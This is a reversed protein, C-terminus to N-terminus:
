DAPIVVPFEGYWELNIKVDYVSEIIERTLMKREAAAAIRGNRLFLFSDCYRFATNLDHMSVVCSMSHGKVIDRVLKMIAPQNKLDLSSTPEDLLMVKPDQVVARAICVKQYEGGSLKDIYRLSLEELGLRSIVAQTIKLDEETIGWKIRPKRGMLVSDFVTIRAPESRQAVYSTKKATERLNRHSLKDGDIYVSGTEPKLIQNMCRLLTTKGAGNPGLVATIENERVSFSVNNLVNLSNYRFSIGEAKIMM